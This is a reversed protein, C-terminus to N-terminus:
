GVRQAREALDVLRDVGSEYEWGLLKRGHSPADYNWVVEDVPAPVQRPQDGQEQLFAVHQMADDLLEPPDVVGRMTTSVLYFQRM